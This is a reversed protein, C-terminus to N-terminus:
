LVGPLEGLTGLIGDPQFGLRDVPAGARNIWYVRFGFAKAGRPALRPRAKPNPTLRHVRGMNEGLRESTSGEDLVNGARCPEGTGLRTGGTLPVPAASGNRYQRKVNTIRPTLM